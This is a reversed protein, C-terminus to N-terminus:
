TRRSGQQVLQESLHQITAKLHSVENNRSEVLLMKEALQIQLEQIKHNLNIQLEEAKTRLEQLSQEKAQLASDMRELELRVRERIQSGQVSLLRETQQQVLELQANEQLLKAVKLQSQQLESNSGEPMPQREAMVNIMQQDKM